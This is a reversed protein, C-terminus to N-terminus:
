VLDSDIWQYWFHERLWDLDYEAHFSRASMVHHSPHARFGRQQFWTFWPSWPPVLGCAVLCGDVRSQHLVAELLLEAAEPDDHPVLWDVLVSSSEMLFACSRQIAYGRLSGDAARVGFRRYEVGPRPALRWELWRADRIASAGFAGRCRDYLARADDGFREVREVGRPAASAADPAGGVERALVIEQRLTGYSLFREGARWAAEVPWGFYALDRGRAGFSDFFGRGVEVFLGPRRLGARHDPLVLSDVIQGFTHEAGDVIVRVPRAAYLAVVRNERLAVCARRGAPNAEYAWGWDNTTRPAAGGARAFVENWAELASLDDDKQMERITYTSM